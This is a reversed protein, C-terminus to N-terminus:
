PVSGQLTRVGAGNNNLIREMLADRVGKEPGTVLRGTLANELGREVFYGPLGGVHAAVGRGLIHSVPSTLANVVQSGALNQVTNTGPPKGKWLNAQRRLDDRLTYLSNVQDDTLRDARQAGPMARERELAKIAGDVKALTPNGNADTFNRNQLWRMADIPGSQAKYQSMYAQYSPAGKEITQDLADLVPKLQSAAERADVATGRARPSIAYNIAKRVGYLMEPDTELQDSPKGTAPDRVYLEDRLALLPQRVAPIKGEPSTLVKNFADVVPQADTPTTNGSKFALNKAAATATDRAQELRDLDEPTGTLKTTFDRRAAAQAEDLQRFLNAYEPFSNRAARELTAGGENGTIQALSGRSGPILQRMDPNQNGNAYFWRMIEDARAEQGAKTLPPVRLPPPRDPIKAINAANSAAYPGSAAAAEGAPNLQVGIQGTDTTPPIEITPQTPAPTTARAIATSTKPPPFQEEPAPKPRTIPSQIQIAPGGEQPTTAPAPVPGTGPPRGSFPARGTAATEQGSWPWRGEVAPAIKSAPVSVPAGKLLWPAANGVGALLANTASEGMMPWTVDSLRNAKDPDYRNAITQRAIDTLLTAGGVGAPGSVPGGVIAPLAEIAGQAFGPANAGAARVANKGSMIANPRFLGALSTSSSYPDVSFINGGPAQNVIRQPEAYFPNGTDDVAVLRGDTGIRIRSMAQDLPLNPFLHSAAIRVKQAPDTATNIMAQFGPGPVQTESVPKGLSQAAVDSPKTESMFQVPRHTYPDIQGQAPVGVKLLGGLAARNAQAEESDDQVPPANSSQLLGKLAARNATAEDDDSPAPATNQAVAQGKLSNYRKQIKDAYAQAATPNYTAGNYAALAQGINGKHQHLLDNMYSAAGFVSSNVDSPDVGRTRATEPDFQMFGLAHVPTGDQRHYVPGVANPNENSEELAMSHLLVPDINFQNGAQQYLNTYDAM